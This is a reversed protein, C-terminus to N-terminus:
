QNLYRVKAADIDQQCRLEADELRFRLALSGATGEIKKLLTKATARGRAVDSEAKDIARFRRQIPSPALHSEALTAQMREIAARMGMILGTVVRATQEPTVDTM